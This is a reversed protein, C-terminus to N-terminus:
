RSICEGTITILTCTTATSTNAICGSHYKRSGTSENFVSWSDCKVIYMQVPFYVVSLCFIHWTLFKTMLDDSSSVFMDLSFFAFFFCHFLWIPPLYNVLRWFQWSISKHVTFFCFVSFWQNPNAFCLLFSFSFIDVVDVFTVHIFNEIYYTCEILKLKTRMQKRNTENKKQSSFWSITQVVQFRLKTYSNRNICTNCVRFWIARWSWLRLWRFRWSRFAVMSYVMRQNWWLMKAIWPSWRRRRWGNGDTCVCACM